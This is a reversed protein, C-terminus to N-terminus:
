LSLEVVLLHDPVWWPSRASGRPLPSARSRCRAFGAASLPPGSHDANRPRPGVPSGATGPRASGRRPYGFCEGRRALAVLYFRGNRKQFLVHNVNTTDGVLRYDLSGTEFSPGPDNFLTIFRKVSWYQHRTSGDNNLLGFDEDNDNILQYIYFRHVNHAFHTLFQRPLYKAAARETVAPHGSISGSLKYGNETVWLPKAGAVLRYRQVADLVSIGWGGGHPSEPHLGSYDHLNGADMHQRAEPFVEALARASDRTNAFSPGLVPLDAVAPSDKYGAYMESLYTRMREAWRPGFDFWRWTTDRENPPEVAEVVRLGALENLGEVYDRGSGREPWNIM